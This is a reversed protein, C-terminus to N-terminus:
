GSWRTSRMPRSSTSRQPSTSSPAPPWAASTCRPPAYGTLVVIKQRLERNSCSKVVNLGSGQLLLLDVVALDWASHQRDALQHGRGPQQSLWWAPASWSKSRNPSPMASSAATKSWISECACRIDPKEFEALPPPALRCLPHPPLCTPADSSHPSRPAHRSAFAGKRSPFCAELGRAALALLEQTSRPERAAQRSFTAGM